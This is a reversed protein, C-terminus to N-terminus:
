SERVVLVSCPAHHIVADSVSGLLTRQWFGYGHSGVVILDANWNEAEEVIAQSPNGLFVETLIELNEDEFLKTLKEKANSVQQEAAKKGNAEVEAYYENPIAFSEAGIGYVREVVSIVKIKTASKVFKASMEVATESQKSGDIAILVKM